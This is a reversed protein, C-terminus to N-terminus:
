ALDGYLAYVGGNSLDAPMLTQLKDMLGSERLIRADHHKGVFPGCLYAIYGDPVVISQFKLGHCRKYRTWLLNQYRIPRCTKRITADIFGWINDFLGCKASVLHGYYEMRGHWITPDNLYKHSIKFLASGFSRVIVLLHSKRMGFKAECDGVLRRPRAMKFLYV